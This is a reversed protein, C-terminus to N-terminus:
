LPAGVIVQVLEIVPAHFLFFALTLMATTGLALVMPWPAEGHDKVPTQDEERFFARVVIPLFYAANLGTS